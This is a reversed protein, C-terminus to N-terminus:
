MSREGLYKYRHKIHAQEEVEEDECGAMEM